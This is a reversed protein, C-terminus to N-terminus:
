RGRRRSPPSPRILGVVPRRRRPATADLLMHPVTLASLGVFLVRVAAAPVATASPGASLWWAAAAMALLTAATAPLAARALVAADDADLWELLHRPAHWVCFYVAFGLLPPLVAFVAPLLLLEMAALVQGRAVHWVLLVAAAPVLAWAASALGAAAVAGGGATSPVLWGFLEAVQAAHFVAPLCLVFGGRVLSEVAWLRRPSEHPRADGSGFHWASVLLFGVLSAVPFALWALLVVGTVLLYAAAFWVVWARGIKPLLWIRGLRGDLAGHPMGTLAVGASLILLQAGLPVPRWALGLLAAVGTALLAVAAHRSWRDAVSAPDVSTISMTQDVGAM